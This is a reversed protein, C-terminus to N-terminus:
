TAALLTLRCSSSLVLENALGNLVERFGRPNFGAVRPSIGIMPMCM